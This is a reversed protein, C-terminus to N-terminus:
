VKIETKNQKINQLNKVEKQLDEIQIQQEKVANVLVAIIARDDLSKITEGTPIEVSEVIDNGKDDYGKTKQEMKTVQKTKVADPIASEVNQASFGVYTNQTDLGSEPKFKYSIPNLAKIQTIASETKYEKINTKVKEDSVSTINGGSDFTATGAGYARFRVPTSVDLGATPTFGVGISVNGIKTITLRNNTYDYYDTGVTDGEGIGTGFWVGRDYRMLQYQGSDAVAGIKTLNNNNKQSAALNNGNVWSRGSLTESLSGYKGIRIRQGSEPLLLQLNAANGFQMTGEVNFVSSTSTYSPSSGNIVVKGGFFSIYSTTNTLSSTAFINCDDNAGTGCIWSQGGSRGNLYAYQTHPDDNTLNSLLNHDTTGALILTGSIPSYIKSVRVADDYYIKITIDPNSTTKGYYKMVFRDTVNMPVPSSLTYTTRLLTPTTYTIVSSDFSYIPTETGNVARKFLKYVLKTEGTTGSVSVYTDWERDGATLATLSPDYEPTVFEKILYETNINVLIASSNTETSTPLIRSMVNYGSIASDAQNHLYYITSYYDVDACSTDENKQKIEDISLATAPTIIMFIACLFLLSIGVCICFIKYKERRREIDSYM